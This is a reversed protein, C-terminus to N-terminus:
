LTIVISYPTNKANKMKPSFTLNNSVRDYSAFIFASKFDVNVTFPDGDPDTIAPLPYSFITDPQVTLFEELKSTFVPAGINM